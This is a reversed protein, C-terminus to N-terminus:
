SARAQLREKLEDMLLLHCSKGTVGTIVDCSTENLVRKTKPSVPLAANLPPATRPIPPPTLIPPPVLPAHPPTTLRSNDHWARLTNATDNMNAIAELMKTTLTETKIEKLVRPFPLEELTLPGEKSIPARVPHKRFHSEELTLPGRDSTPPRTKRDKHVPPASHFGLTM